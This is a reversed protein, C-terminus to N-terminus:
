AAPIQNNFPPIYKFYLEREAINRDYQNNIICYHFLSGPNNALFRKLELNQESNSLHEEYRRRLDSAQGIYKVNRFADTIAYVGPLSTVKDKNSYTYPVMQDLYIM